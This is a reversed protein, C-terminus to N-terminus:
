PSSSGNTPPTLRIGSLPKLLDLCKQPDQGVSAFLSCAFMVPTDTKDGSAFRSQFGQGVPNYVHSYNTLGLASVDLLTALSQKDRDLVSTVRALIGLNDSLSQRNKKIFDSTLSLASGLNNLAASLQGREGDLQASVQNLDTTFNRTDQDHQQLTTVLQQLNDITGFLDDRHAALTQTM